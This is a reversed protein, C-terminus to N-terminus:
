SADRTSIARWGPGSLTTRRTISSPRPIGVGSGNTSLPWPPSRPIRSRARSTPPASATLCPLSPPTSTLSSTGAPSPQHRDREHGADEDGVVVRDDAGAERLHDVRLRVHLDGGLGLVSGFGDLF